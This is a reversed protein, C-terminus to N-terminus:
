SYSNEWAIKMYLNGENIYDNFYQYKASISKANKKVKQDKGGVRRPITEQSFKVWSVEWNLSTTRRRKGKRKRTTTTRRRRRRMRRM